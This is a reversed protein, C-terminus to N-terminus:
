QTAQTAQIGQNGLNSLEIDSVQWGSAAQQVTVAYQNATNVAPQTSTVKQNVTIVFTISGSAFSRISDITGSGTSVQKDAARPGAVGATSYYYEQATVESPTALGGLSAGYAAKDETYSWTVYQKAFATTTQSAAALDGPTFPLWQYIEAGGATSAPTASPVVAPPTSAAGSGSASAPASSSAPATPAAAPTGSNRHGILYIGLGVVVLVFIVFALRQQGSTLNM